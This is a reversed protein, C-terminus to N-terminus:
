RRRIQEPPCSYPSHAGIFFKRLPNSRYTEILEIM